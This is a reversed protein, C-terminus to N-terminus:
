FGPWGLSAWSRTSDLRSISCCFCQFLARFAPCEVPAFCTLHPPPFPAGAARAKDAGLSSMLFVPKSQKSAAVTAKLPPSKRFITTSGGPCPCQRVSYCEAARDGNRDCSRSQKPSAKLFGQLVIFGNKGWVI